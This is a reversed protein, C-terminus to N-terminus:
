VADVADRCISKLTDACSPDTTGLSLNVVDMRHEICWRLAVVLAPGSTALSADFIRVSYIMAAPAKRRIIGACATGHGSCDGSDASEVIQGDATNRLQVEGHM